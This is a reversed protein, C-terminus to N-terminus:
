KMKGKPFYVFSHYPTNIIESPIKKPDYQPLTQNENRDKELIRVNGKESLENWINRGGYSQYSGSALIHNNTDSWKKYLESMLGKKRYSEHLLPEIAEFHNGIASHEAPAFAVKGIVKHEGNVVKTIYGLKNEPLQWKPGSKNEDVSDHFHFEENEITISGINRTNAPLNSGISRTLGSPPEEIEGRIGQLLPFDEIIYQKFSKM